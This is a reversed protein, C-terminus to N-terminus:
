CLVGEKKTLDEMNVTVKLGLNVVGSVVAPIDNQLAAALEKRDEEKQRKVVELSWESVLKQLEVKIGPRKSESLTQNLVEIVAAANDPNRDLLFGKACSFGTALTHSKMSESRLQEIKWLSDVDGEKAAFEMWLEFSTQRLKVGAMVFRKAYKSMLDWRDTNYCISFVIDATGPQMPLDNRKLLKMIEVMLNADNHQKAYLLLHHASGISPSLGYVNRKWLAKKGFDIAGVRACAKTIERCLNCNFDEHIRLNSLRFVRLRQLIDFLLKIDNQTTCNEILSWLWANPPMTRKEAVSQLMKDYLEKVAETLNDETASAGTSFLVKPVMTMMM